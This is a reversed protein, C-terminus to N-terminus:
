FDFGVTRRNWKLVNIDLKLYYKADDPAPLNEIKNVKMQYVNNRVVGYNMAAISNSGQNHTIFGCYTLFINGDTDPEFKETKGSQPLTIYLASIEDGTKEVTVYKPLESDPTTKTIVGNKSKNKIQFKFLVGTANKELDSEMLSVSPITNESVYCWPYYTTSTTEDPTRSTIETITKESEAIPSTVGYPKKSYDLKNVTLYTNVDKTFASTEFTWSPDAVWTYGSNGKENGFLAAATNAAADDGAATHRFVYSKNNVNFPTVSYMSLEIGSEPGGVGDMLKYTDAVALDLRAVAREVDIANANNSTGSEPTLDYYFNGNDATFMARVDSVTSKQKFATIPTTHAISAMPMTKGDEGFDTITGNFKEEFNSIAPSGFQEPNCVVILSINHTAVATAFASVEDTPSTSLQISVNYTADKNENPDTPTSLTNGDVNNKVGKYAKLVAKTDSDIIYLDLSTVENEADTGGLLRDSSSGNNETTSRTSKMDTPVALNMTLYYNGEGGTSPVEPTLGEESSCAGLALLLPLSYIIKKM